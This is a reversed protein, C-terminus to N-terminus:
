LLGHRLRSVAVQQSVDEGTKNETSPDETDGDDPKPDPAGAEGSHIETVMELPYEKEEVTVYYQNDHYAVKTVQGTIITPDEEEETAPVTITVQKDMLLDAYQPLDTVAAPNKVEMVNSMEFTKGNVTIQFEGNVFSVKEAPGEETVFSGDSMVKAAVVNKGVLSSVFSANMHYALQEMQQLTSFQAMQGIFETDSMPNMFDQNSLQAALLTFFDQMELTDNSQRQSIYKKFEPDTVNPVAVPLDM